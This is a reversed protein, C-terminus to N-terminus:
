KIKVFYRVANDTQLAQRMASHETSWMRITNDDGGTFYTDPGYLKGQLLPDVQVPEHWRTCCMGRQSLSGVGM